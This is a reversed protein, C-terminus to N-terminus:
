ASVAGGRFCSNRHLLPFAGFLRSGAIAAVGGSVSRTRATKSPNVSSL